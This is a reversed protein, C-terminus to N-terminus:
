LKMETDETDETSSVNWNQARRCCKKHLHLVGIQTAPL